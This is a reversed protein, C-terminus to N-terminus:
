LYFIMKIEGIQSVFYSLMVFFGEECLNKGLAASM